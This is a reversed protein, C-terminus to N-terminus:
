ASISNMLCFCYEFKYLIIHANQKIFFFTFLFPHLLLLSCSKPSNVELFISKELSAWWFANSYQCFMANSLLSSFSLFSNVSRACKLTKQIMLSNYFCSAVFTLTLSNIKWKFFCCWGCLSSGPTKISSM